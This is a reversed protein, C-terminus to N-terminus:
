SAHGAVARSSVARSPLWLAGAWEPTNMLREPRATTVPIFQLRESELESNLFHFWKPANSATLTPINAGYTLVEPARGEAYDNTKWRDPL